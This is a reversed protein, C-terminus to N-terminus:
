AGAESISLSRLMSPYTDGEATGAGQNGYGYTLSDGVCVITEAGGLKPSIADFFTRALLRNGAPTLHVGDSIFDSEPMSETVSDFDAIAVGKTVILHRLAANYRARKGNATENGVKERPHHAYVVAENVKHITCVVPAIGGQRSQEILWEMNDVYKDLPTFFNDNIVDNMGIYIFAYDPKPTLRLVDDAFRARVIGSNQGCRGHNIVTLRNTRM